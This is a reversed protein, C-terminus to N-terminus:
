EMFDDRKVDINLCQGGNRSAIFGEAFEEATRVDLLQVNPQEICKTFDEVNVSKVNGQACAGLHLGALACLLKFINKM